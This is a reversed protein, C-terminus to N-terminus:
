RNLGEAKSILSDLLEESDPATAYKGGPGLWRAAVSWCIRYRDNGMKQFHYHDTGNGDNRNLIISGSTEEDLIPMEFNIEENQLIKELKPLDEKYIAPEM